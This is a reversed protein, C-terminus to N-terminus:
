PVSARLPAPVYPLLLTLALAVQQPVVGNGLAKLQATRSLGPVGTVWGAPLGMMWEVFAPSLRTRTRGPEVPAPATRGLVREWRAIAPAYEAPWSYSSAPEGPSGRAGALGEWTAGELGTLEPYSVAAGGGPDSDTGWWSSAGLDPTAPTALSPYPDQDRSDAPAQGGAGPEGWEPAWQGAPGGPSWSWEADAGDRPYAAFFVRKREHPADAEDASVVTWVADYGLVALDALVAGAARVAHEDAGDGLCWPCPELDSDAGSSLLGRVNELIVLPPRLAGIARAVHSWVGTRTGARLGRRQGACSVDQCPFGAALIDPRDEDNWDITSIDGWNPVGPFRHRIILSCGPDNDAMWVPAAELVLSIGMGLGGYGACLEGITLKSTTSRM